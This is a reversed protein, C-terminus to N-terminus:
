RCVFYNMHSFWTVVFKHNTNQSKRKRPGENVNFTKKKKKFTIQEFSLLMFIQVQVIHMKIVQCNSWLRSEISLIEPVLRRVPAKCSISSFPEVTLLKYLQVWFLTSYFGCIDVWQFLLLQQSVRAAWKLWLIHTNKVVNYVAYRHKCLSGSLSM